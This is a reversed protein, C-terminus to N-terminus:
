GQDLCARITRALQRPHFPKTLFNLGERPQFGQNTLDVNYGTVFVVKLSSKATQLQQALKSGSM